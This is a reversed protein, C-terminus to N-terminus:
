IKATELCWKMLSQKAASVFIFRGLIYESQAFFTYFATNYVM